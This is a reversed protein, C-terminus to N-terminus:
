LWCLDRYGYVIICIIHYTFKKYECVKYQIICNWKLTCSHFKVRIRKELLSNLALPYPANFQSPSCTNYWWAGGYKLACSNNLDLDNEVDYTSFKMSNHDRTLSDSHNGAGSSSIETFNLQYGTAPGLVKFAEYTTNEIPGGFQQYETLLKTDGAFAHLSDTYRAWGWGSSEM